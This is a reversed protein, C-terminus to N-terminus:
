AGAGQANGAAVGGPRRGPRMAQSPDAVPINGTEPHTGAVIQMLGDGFHLELREQKGDPGTVGTGFSEAKLSDCMAAPVRCLQLLAWAQGLHDDPNDTATSHQVEVAVAGLRKRRRSGRGAPRRLDGLLVGVMTARRKNAPDQLLEAITASNQRLKPWAKTRRKQRTPAKM